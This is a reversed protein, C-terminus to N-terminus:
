SVITCCKIKVIFNMEIDFKDPVTKDAAFILANGWEQWRFNNAVDFFFEGNRMEPKIRCSTHSLSDYLYLEFDVGKVSRVALSVKKGAFHPTEARFFGAGGRELSYTMGFPKHIFKHRQFPEIIEAKSKPQAATPTKKKDIKLNEGNYARFVPTRFHIKKDLMEKSRYNCFNLKVFHM